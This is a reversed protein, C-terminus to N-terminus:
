NEKNQIQDMLDWAPISGGQTVEEIKNAVDESQYLEVIKKYLPNDKDEARATINNVALPDMTEVTDGYVFIADSPKFDTSGLFSYDIIAADVDTVAAPIQAADLEIFELEKPNEVIDSPTPLHNDKDELKILGVHEFMALSSAVATPAQNIAVKAGQPLDDLSKYKDSYIRFPVYHTYGITTLDGDNEENWNALFKDHQFANLDISGDRLAQNPMNYDDFLVVELDIGEEQKAKEAVFKWIEEYESGVVGIKVKQGEFEKAEVHLGVQGITLAFVAFLSILTLIKRM